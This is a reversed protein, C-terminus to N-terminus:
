RATAGSEGAVVLLAVTGVLLGGATWARRRGLEVDTGAAVAGAAYYLSALVGGVAAVGLLTGTPTSASPRARM